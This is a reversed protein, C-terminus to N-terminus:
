FKRFEIDDHFQKDAITSIDMIDIFAHLFYIFLMSKPIALFGVLSLANWHAQQVQNQANGVSAYLPYYENQGTAVSVTTKNSGLIIPVFMAGHTDPDQSLIDQLTCSHFGDFSSLFHCVAQDWVWNGSMFDSYQWKGNKGFVQKPSYDLETKFDRNGLQGEL